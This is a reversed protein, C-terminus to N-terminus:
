AAAERLAQRVADPARQIVKLYARVAGEPRSRSQEWDRVTALTFGYALAFDKQTLGLSKRIARVDLNSGPVIRAPAAEGKGIALAEHASRLLSEGLKTM